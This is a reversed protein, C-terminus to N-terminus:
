RAGFLNNAKGLQRRQQYEETSQGSARSDAYSAVSEQRSWRRSQDFSAASGRASAGEYSGNEGQDSNNSQDRNQDLVSADNRSTDLQDFGSAERFTEDPRSDFGSREPQDYVSSQEPRESACEEETMCLSASAATIDPTLTADPSASLASRRPPVVEHGEIDHL